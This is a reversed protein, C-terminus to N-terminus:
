KQRNTTTSLKLLFKFINPNRLKSSFLKYSFNGLQWGGGGDQVTDM